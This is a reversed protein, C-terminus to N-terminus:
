EFYIWMVKRKPAYNDYEFRLGIESIKVLYKDTLSHEGTQTSVKEEVWNYNRFRRKLAMYNDLDEYYFLTLHSILNTKKDVYVDIKKFKYRLIKFESYTDKEITEDPPGFLNNLRTPNKEKMLSIIKEFIDGEKSLPKIQSCSMILVLSIYLFRM